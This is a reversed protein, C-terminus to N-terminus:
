PIKLIRNRRKQFPKLIKKIRLNFISMYIWAEQVELINLTCFRHFMAYDQLFLIKLVDIINFRLTLRHVYIFSFSSFMHQNCIM